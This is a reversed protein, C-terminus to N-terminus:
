LSLTCCCGENVIPREEALPVYMTTKFSRKTCVYLPLKSADRGRTHTGLSPASAAVSYEGGSSITRRVHGGGKGQVPFLSVTGLRPVSEESMSQMM